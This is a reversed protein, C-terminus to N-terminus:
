NSGLNAVPLVLDDDFDSDNSPDSRDKKWTEYSEMGEAFLAKMEANYYMVAVVQMRIVFDDRAAETQDILMRRYASMIEPIFSNECLMESDNAAESLMGALMERDAYTLDSFDRCEENFILNCVFDQIPKTKFIPNITM